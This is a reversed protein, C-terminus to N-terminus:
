YGTSRDLPSGTILRQEEYETDMDNYFKKDGMRPNGVFRPNAQIVLKLADLLDDDVKTPSEKALRESSKTKREAWTWRKITKIVDTCTDFVYIRPAGKEGTVFHEKEPDVVFWEKLIPVYHESDAGSGQKMRLGAM